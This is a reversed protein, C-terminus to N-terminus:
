ILAAATVDSPVARYPFKRIRIIVNIYKRLENGGYQAYLTCQPKLSHRMVAYCVSTVVLLARTFIAKM